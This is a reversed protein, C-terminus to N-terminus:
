RTAGHLAGRLAATAAADLPTGGVVDVARPDAGSAVLAAVIARNAALRAARPRGDGDDRSGLRGEAAFHLPTCGGINVTHSPTM